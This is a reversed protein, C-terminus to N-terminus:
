KKECLFTVLLLNVSFLWSYSQTIWWAYPKEKHYKRESNCLCEPFLLPFVSTFELLSRWSVGETYSVTGVHLSRSFVPSLSPIVQEWGHATHLSSLSFEGPEDTNKGPFSSKELFEQGDPWWGDAGEVRVTLVVLKCPTKKLSDRQIKSTHLYFFLQKCENNIFMIYIKIWWKRLSNFLYRFWFWSKVLLPDQLKLNERFSCFSNCPIRKKFIKKLKVSYRNGLEFGNINEKCALLMFWFMKFIESVLVEWM